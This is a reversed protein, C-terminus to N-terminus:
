VPPDTAIAEIVRVTEKVDNIDAISITSHINRVPISIVVTPTGGKSLSIALADTTGTDSVEIQYPIRKKRLLKEIKKMLVTNAIFEEDKYTLYPGHSMGGNTDDYDQAPTTDVNIAFDGELKFASVRAGYMGMEEQATFVYSINRKKKKMKKALMISAACGVRNDMAKGSMINEKGLTAFARRPIVYDGPGIGLREVEKKSKLGVDIYMQEISPFEESVLGEHLNKSSIVGHVVRKESAVIHVQQALLTEPEIGGVRSFIIRGDKEVEKVMLGIEDMHSFVLVHPGRGKQTAILNGFSDVTIKDVFPRIEKKILKRINEEGGSPGYVAALRKVLDVVKDM